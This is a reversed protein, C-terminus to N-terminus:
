KKLLPIIWLGHSSNRLYWERSVEVANGKEISRGSEFVGQLHRKLPEKSQLELARQGCGETLGVVTILISSGVAGM